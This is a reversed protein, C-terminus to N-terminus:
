WNWYDRFFELFNKTTFINIGLEAAFLSSLVLDFYGLVRGIESTSDPNTQAAIVNTAFNIYIMLAVAVQFWQSKYVQRASHQLHQLRKSSTSNLSLIGCISDVWMRLEQSSDTKFLYEKGRSCSSPDTGILFCYKLEDLNMECNSVITSWLASSEIEAVQNKSNQGSFNNSRCCSEMQNNEGIARLSTIDACLIRNILRERNESYYCLEYPIRDDGGSIESRIELWRENWRRDNWCGDLMVFKKVPGKSIIPSDTQKEPIKPRWFRISAFLTSTVVSM